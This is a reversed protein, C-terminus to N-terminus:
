DPIKGDLYDDVVDTLQYPKLGGDIFNRALLNIEAQNGTIGFVTAIEPNDCNSQQIEIGYGRKNKLTFYELKSGSKGDTCSEGMYYRM